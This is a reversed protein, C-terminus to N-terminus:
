RGRSRRQSRGNSITRSCRGATRTIAASLTVPEPHRIKGYALVVVPRSYIPGSLGRAQIPINASLRSAPRFNPNAALVVAPVSALLQTRLTKRCTIPTLGALGLRRLQVGGHFANTRSRTIMNFVLGGRDRSANGAAGIQLNMEQFAFPDLFFATGIGNGEINSIDMGDISYGNETNSGRITPGSQLFASSGGVDVQSM